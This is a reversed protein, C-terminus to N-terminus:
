KYWTGSAVRWGGVSMGESRDVLAPLWHRRKLVGCLPPESRAGLGTSEIVPRTVEGRLLGESVAGGDAPTNRGKVEDGDCPQDVM